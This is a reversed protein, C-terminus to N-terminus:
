SHAAAFEQILLRNQSEVHHIRIALRHVLTFLVVLLLGFLLVFPFAVGTLSALSNAIDPFYAFGAPALAVMSLLLLDYIDLSERLTKTVLHRLYLFAFIGVFLLTQISPTHSSM